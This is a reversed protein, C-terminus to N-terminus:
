IVQFGFIRGIMPLTQCLKHHLVAFKYITEKTPKRIMGRLSIIMSNDEERYGRSMFQRRTCIVEMGTNLARFRWEISKVVVVILVPFSQHFFIKYLLRFMMTPRQLTDKPLIFLSLFIQIAALSQLLVLIRINRWKIRSRDMQISSECLLQDIEELHQLLKNIGRRFALCLLLVLADIIAYSVSMTYRVHVFFSKADSKPRAGDIGYAIYTTLALLNLSLSLISLVRPVRRNCNWWPGLLGFLFSNWFIPAFSYNFTSM